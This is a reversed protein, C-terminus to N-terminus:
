IRSKALAIFANNRAFCFDSLPGAVDAQASELVVRFIKNRRSTEGVATGKPPVVEWM